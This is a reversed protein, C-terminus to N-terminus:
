RLADDVLLRWCSAGLRRKDATSCPIGRERERRIWNEVGSSVSRECIIVEGTFFCAQADRCLWDDTQEQVSGVFWRRFSGATVDEKITYAFLTLVFMNVFESVM